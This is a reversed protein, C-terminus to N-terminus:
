GIIEDALLILLFQLTKTAMGDGESTGGEPVPGLIFMAAIYKFDVAAGLVVDQGHADVAIALQICEACDILISFHDSGASEFHDQGLDFFIELM